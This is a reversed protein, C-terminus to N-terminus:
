THLIPRRPSAVQSGDTFSIPQSAVSPGSFRREKGFRRARARRSPSSQRGKVPVLTPYASSAIFYHLSSPSLITALAPTVSSFLFSVALSLRFSLSRVREISQSVWALPLKIGASPSYGARSRRRPDDTILVTGKGERNSPFSTDGDWGRGSEAKGEVSPGSKAADPLRILSVFLEAVLLRNHANSREGMPAGPIVTCIELDEAFCRLYSSRPSLAPFSRARLLLYQM